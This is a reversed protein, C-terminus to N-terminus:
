HTEEFLFGVFFISWDDFKLRMQIAEIDTFFWLYKSKLRNKSTYITKFSTFILTKKGLYIGKKAM